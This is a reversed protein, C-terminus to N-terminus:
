KMGSWEDAIDAIKNREWETIPRVSGDSQLVKGGIEVAAFGFDYIEGAEQIKLWFEKDAVLMQYRLDNNPKEASVPTGWDRPWDQDSEPM